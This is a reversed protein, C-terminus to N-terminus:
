VDIPRRAHERARARSCIGEWETAALKQLGLVAELSDPLKEAQRGFILGCTEADAYARHAGGLVVGWRGACQGLKRSLFGERLSFDLLLTDFVEMGDLPNQRGPLHALEQRIMRLDFSANHAVAIGSRQFVGALPWLIDKFSPADALEARTLGNVDLAGKAKGWDIDGPNVLSEFSAVPRGRVFLIAAVDLIRADEGVGSTETDFAVYSHLWSRMEM